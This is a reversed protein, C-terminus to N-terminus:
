DPPLQTFDWVTRIDHRELMQAWRRGVGWVNSIPFHQLDKEINRHPAMDRLTCDYQAM